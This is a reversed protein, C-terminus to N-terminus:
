ASGQLRWTPPGNLASYIGVGGISVDMGPPVSWGLLRAAVLLPSIGGGFVALLFAIRRPGRRSFFLSCFGYALLVLAFGIMVRATHFILVPPLHTLWQLHGLLIYFPYVVVGSHPV